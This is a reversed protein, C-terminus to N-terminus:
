CSDDVNWCHLLPLSYPESYFLMHKALVWYSINWPRKDEVLSFLLLLCFVPVCGASLSGFLSLHSQIQTHRCLTRAGIRWTCSQFLQKISISESPFQRTVKSLVIHSISAILCLTSNLFCHWLFAACEPTVTVAATFSITELQGTKPWISVNHIM